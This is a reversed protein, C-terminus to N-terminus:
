LKELRINRFKVIAKDDHNQLGIHGRMSRTQETELVAEGNMEIRISAGKAIITVTNWEGASRVLNKTPAVLDYLAGPGKASPPRGPADYIQMEYGTFAPNKELASRLMIGSNGRENVTYQLELRFDSYEKKTHLWSGTEEPDTSWDRGNTGTLIGDEVTWDGGKIKKWGSLNRGNFIPMCRKQEERIERLIDRTVLIAEAEKEQSRAGSEIGVNGTYGFDRVIRMMRPFDTAPDLKGPAVLGSKASVAKAYPMLQEVANHREVEKPFNGFDPLTGFNPKDVAEMLSTLWQPNSSHGGHNEICVNIDREAAYDSLTACSGAMIKRLEDADEVGYANVRVTHCGLYKAADIWPFTKEIAEDRAAKDATGLAGNTDIMILAMTVGEDDARMKLEDLYATDKAKDKFFQDVFEITDIDFQRKTVKAFDLNTMKGGFITRNLSWQALSINFFENKPAALATRISLGPLVIGTAAGAGLALFARRKM